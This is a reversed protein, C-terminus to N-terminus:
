ALCLNLQKSPFLTVHVKGLSFSSGSGAERSGVAGARRGSAPGHKPLKQKARALPTCRASDSGDLWQWGSLQPMGASGQNQSCPVELLLAEKGMAATGV